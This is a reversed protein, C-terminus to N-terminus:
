ILLFNIKEVCKSQVQLQICSNKISYTSQYIYQNKNHTKVIDSNFRENIGSVYVTMAFVSLTFGNAKWNYSNIFIFYKRAELLKRKIRNGM